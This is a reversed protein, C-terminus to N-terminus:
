LAWALFLALAPVWFVLALLIRLVQRTIVRAESGFAVVYKNSRSNNNKKREVSSFVTSEEGAYPRKDPNLDLLSRQWEKQAGMGGYLAQIATRGEDRYANVVEGTAYVQAGSPIWRIIVKFVEADRWEAFAPFLHQIHAPLERRSYTKESFKMLENLYTHHLVHIIGGGDQIAFSFTGVEHADITKERPSSDADSDGYVAALRISYYIVPDGTEPHNLPPATPTIPATRGQVEVTAGLRLRDTRTTPLALMAILQRVYQLLIFFVIFATLGILGVAILPLNEATRQTATWLQEM